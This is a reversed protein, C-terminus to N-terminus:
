KYCEVMVTFARAREGVDAVSLNAGAPASQYRVNHAELFSALVSAKIAFNINQPIDGTKSAVLAANLKMEVVGVVNGSLDLLPGGSNGPQVPASIQLLHTSDGIGALASINGTTLNGTSAVLGTLPFGFVVVGDGARLAPESRLSAITEVAEAAKLLSFDEAQSTAVLRVAVSPDKM